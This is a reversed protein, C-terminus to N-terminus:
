RRRLTPRDQQDANVHRIATALLDGPYFDGEALVDSALLALAHPSLVNVGIGQGILLRFDEPNSHRGSQPAVRARHPRAPLRRGPPVGRTM